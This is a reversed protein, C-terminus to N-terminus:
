NFKLQIYITCICIYIHLQIPSYQPNHIIFSLLHHFQSSCCVATSQFSYCIRTTAAARDIKTMPEICWVFFSLRETSDFWNYNCNIELTDREHMSWVAYWAIYTSYLLWNSFYEDYVFTSSVFVDSFMKLRFCCM